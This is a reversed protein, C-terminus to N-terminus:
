GEKGTLFYVTDLSVSRAAAMIQEKTVALAAHLLTEPTEEQGTAIQGMIFDEMRGASDSLSRFANAISRQAGILEWDEWNGQKMDELQHLIEDVAKQYNRFEIGSSVTLLNKVRHYSSSAYYCLSLKERVNLFLKANSTGGFMANMMTAAAKDETSLSFGLCLKGQTVDMQERIYRPEKPIPHCAAPLLPSVTRHEPLDKLLLEFAATVRSLPARGCYYLELQQTHIAERYYATLDEPTITSVDSLEGIHSLGYAEGQCMEELLRKGSLVRKDNIASRIADLLNARESLVYDEQFTGNELLPHFLIEGLLRCLEELLPAKEPLFSEDICTAVFGWLQTEGRKRVAHEINAGYLLDMAKSLQQLDPYKECGRDLVASLLASLGATEKKLPTLFQISIFDTKFKDAKVYTLSVGKSLSTRLYNM